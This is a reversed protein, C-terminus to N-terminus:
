KPKKRKIIKRIADPECNLVKAAHAVVQEDSVAAGTKGVLYDRIAAVESPTLIRAAFAAPTEKGPAQPPRLPPPHKKLAKIQSEPCHLLEAAFAVVLRGNGRQKGTEDAFLADIRQVIAFWVRRRKLEFPKNRAYDRRAGRKCQPPRQIFRAIDPDGLRDAVLKRLPALDADTAKPTMARSKAYELEFLERDEELSAPTQDALWVAFAAETRREVRRHRRRDASTPKALASELRLLGALEALLRDRVRARLDALEAPTRRM